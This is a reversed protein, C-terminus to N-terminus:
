RAHDRGPVPRAPADPAPALYRYRHHTVFGYPRYLAIAAANAPLTQLYASEAGHAAGWELLRDVVRAALGERRRSPVVEVAALGLWGGTVVGRGIAVPGGPRDADIAAFATVPPGALVGAVVEAPVDSTRGYVAMWQETPADLLAVEPRASGASDGSTRVTRLARAVSAVQVLAGERHRAVQWGADLLRQEIPAGIVAQALVPLGHASYFERVAALAEDLPMGPDGVPLVSNARGTFGAAERLRWDGLRQVTRAPWGQDCVQQLTDADIDPTPHGPPRRAPRPPVPRGAVVRATPVRVRAGDDTEVELADTDYAVLRGLVDTASAGPEPTALLYRVVV